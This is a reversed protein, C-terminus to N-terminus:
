ELENSSVSSEKLGVRTGGGTKPVGSPHGRTYGLLYDMKIEPIRV